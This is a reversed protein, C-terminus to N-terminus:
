RVGLLSRIKTRSFHYKAALKQQSLGTNLYERTIERQVEAPVRITNAEVALRRTYDQAMKRGEAYHWPMRTVRVKGIRKGATVEANFADVVEQATIRGEYYDVTTELEKHKKWTYPLMSRATSVVSSISLIKLSQAGERRKNQPLYSQVGTCDLYNKLMTLQHLWNDSFELYLGLTFLQVDLAVNGDGDFYGAVQSWDSYGKTIM